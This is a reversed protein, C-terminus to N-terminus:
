EPDWVYPPTRRYIYAGADTQTHIAYYQDGFWQVLLPPDGVWDVQGDHVFDGAATQLIVLAM